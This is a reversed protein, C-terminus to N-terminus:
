LTIKLNVLYTDSKSLALEHRNPYLLELRKKVNEIGFGSRLPTSQVELGKPLSNEILFTLRNEEVQLHIRVWPTTEDKSVGHKFANEVFPVLLLPPILKGKLDGKKEFSLELRNGYRIKELEIYNSLLTVEKELEINDTNCEYLMYSIMDSLKLIAEGANKEGSIVMGYINNLTNFLFHPQLQNKLIQLEAETKEERLKTTMREQKLFRQTMKIAVLPSAVYILDVLMYVTKTSWFSTSGFPYPFVQYLAMLALMGIFAFVLVLVGLKLYKKSTIYKPFVVYAIFYAYPVKVLMTIFEFFFWDVYQEGYYSGNVVGYFTLWFSWYLVHRLIREFSWGDFEKTLLLM